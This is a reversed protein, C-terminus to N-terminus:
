LEISKARRSPFAKRDAPSRLIECLPDLSVASPLEEVRAQLAEVRDGFGCQALMSAVKARADDYFLQPANRYRVAEPDGNPCDSFFIKRTGDALDVVLEVKYIDPYDATFQPDDTVAVKRCLDLMQKARIAKETFDELGVQGRLLAVAIMYPLNFQADVPDKPESHYTLVDTRYIRAGIGVIEDARIGEQKAHIALDIAGHGFRCCPYPKVATGFASYTRGLDRTMAEADIPEGFSYARFFGGKGEFITAPGTFGHRALRASLVGTQAARGPHLRKIWTGATRWETLGSAQTGAIGLANVFTDRGLGMAVCAAAAAGFVGCLSTPHVGHYFQSGRFVQGLRCTVEYGALMARLFTAGSAGAAEAAALAAPAIVAGPHLVAIRHDDDLELAHAAAGNVLAADWAAAAHGHGILTAEAKGTVEIITRAVPQSSPEASGALIVALTDLAYPVMRAGLGADNLLAPGTAFDALQEAITSM